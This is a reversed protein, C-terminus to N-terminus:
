IYLYYYFFDPSEATLVPGRSQAGIYPDLRKKKGKLVKNRQRTEKYYQNRNVSQHLVQAICASPFSFVLFSSM